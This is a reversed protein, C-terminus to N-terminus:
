QCQNIEVGACCCCCISLFSVAAVVLVDRHFYEWAYLLAYLYAHYVHKRFLM